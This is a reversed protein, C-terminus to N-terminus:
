NNVTLTKIEGNEKFEIDSPSISLIKISKYDMGEKLFVTQNNTQDLILVTKSKDNVIVGNIIFNLSEKPEVPEIKIEKKKLVQIFPNLVFPDKEFKVYEIEATNFNSKKKLTESLLESDEIEIVLEEDNSFYNIVRSIILGWIIVVVIVMVIFTPNKIKPLNM